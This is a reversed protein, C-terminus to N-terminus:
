TLQPQFFILVVILFKGVAVIHPLIDKRFDIKKM